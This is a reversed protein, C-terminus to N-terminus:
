SNYAYFWLGSKMHRKSLYHALKRTLRTTCTNWLLYCQQCFCILFFFFFHVFSQWIIHAIRVHTWTTNLLYSIDNIHYNGTSYCLLGLQSNQKQQWKVKMMTLISLLIDCKTEKKKLFNSSSYKLWLNLSLCVNEVKFWKHCTM